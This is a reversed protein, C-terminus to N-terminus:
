RFNLHGGVEPYPSHSVVVGFWLCPLIDGVCLTGCSTRRPLFSRLIPSGFSLCTLAHVPFRCTM